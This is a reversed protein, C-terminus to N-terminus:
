SGFGTTPETFPTPEAKAEVECAEPENNSLAALLKNVAVVAAGNLLTALLGFPIKENPPVALATLEVEM